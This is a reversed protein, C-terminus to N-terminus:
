LAVAETVAVDSMYGWSRMANAEKEALDRRATWRCAVPAKQAAVGFADAREDRRGWVVFAYPKASTRTATHGLYASRYTTKTM